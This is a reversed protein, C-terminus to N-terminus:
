IFTLTALMARGLDPSARMVYTYNGRRFVYSVDSDFSNTRTIRLVSGLGVVNIEETSILNKSSESEVAKEFPTNSISIGVFFDEPVPSFTLFVIEDKIYPSYLRKIGWGTPYRIEFGLDEGKYVPWDRTNISGDHEPTIVIPDTIPVEIKPSFDRYNNVNSTTLNPIERERLHNVLAYLLVFLALAFFLIVRKSRTM